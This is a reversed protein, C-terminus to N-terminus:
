IGYIEPGEATHEEPVKLTLLRGVNSEMMQSHLGLRVIEDPCFVLEQEIDIAPLPLLQTPALSTVLQPSIFKGWLVTQAPMWASKLPGEEINTPPEPVYVALM